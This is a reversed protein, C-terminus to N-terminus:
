MIASYYTRWLINGGETTFQIEFCDSKTKTKSELRDIRFNM